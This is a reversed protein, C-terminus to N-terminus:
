ALAFFVVLNSPPNKSATKKKFIFELRTFVCEFASESMQAIKSARRAESNIYNDEAILCKQNVFVINIM